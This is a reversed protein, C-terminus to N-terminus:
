VPTQEPFLTPRPPPHKDPFLEEGTETTRVPGSAKGRWVTEGGETRVVSFEACPGAVTARKPRGPLYGVTNLRVPADDASAPFTGAALLCLTATVLLAACPSASRRRDM